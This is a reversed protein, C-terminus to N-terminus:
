RYDEACRVLGAKVPNNEIYFKIREWEIQNRVWHDYSEKQWFPTGTRGLLKNAERATYGKLSKLLKNAPIKPLLLVHVHNAMIVFSALEYNGAEMGHWLSAIVQSAIEEKVLFMPGTRASDLKRDMLVFAEGSLTKGPPQFESPTDRRPPALHPVALPRGPLYSSPPPQDRDSFSFHPPTPLFRV